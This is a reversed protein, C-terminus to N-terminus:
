RVRRDPEGRTREQPYLLCGLDADKIDALSWLARQLMANQPLAFM